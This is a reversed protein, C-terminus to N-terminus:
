GTGTNALWFEASFIEGMEFNVLKYGDLALSRTEWGCILMNEHKGRLILPTPMSLDVEPFTM